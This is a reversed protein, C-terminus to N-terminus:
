GRNTVPLYLPHITVEGDLLDAWAQAKELNPFAGYTVRGYRDLEEQTDNRPIVQVVYGEQWQGEYSEYVKM